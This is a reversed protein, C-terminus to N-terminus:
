RGMPHIEETLHKVMVAKGVLALLKEGEVSRRLNAFAFHARRSWTDRTIGATHPTLLVNRLACLPHDPPLPETAFVDLGAGLINNGRLANALASEDVVPGRCTNILLANPRMQAIEPAGILGQTERTLPVHLSLIDARSLAESLSVREINLGAVIKAPVPFEDVYLLEAGFVKLRQAVQQGIHGFGILAATKGHITYTNRGSNVPDWQGDRIGQDQDLLRRYLGLILALTHEAVDISNTGGNNAVPIGLEACLNLDMHEYGASLLQVLKLHPATRLVESSLYGPFLILGDADAVIAIKDADAIDAPYTEIQFDAPAAATIQTSLDSDLFTFFPTKIM